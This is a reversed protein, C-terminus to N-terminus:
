KFFLRNWAYNLKERLKIKRSDHVAHL